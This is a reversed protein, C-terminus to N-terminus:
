YLKTVTAKMGNIVVRYTKAANDFTWVDVNGSQQWTFVVENAQQFWYASNGGPPLVDNKSRPPRDSRRAVGNKLVNYYFTKGTFDVKWWGTLAGL